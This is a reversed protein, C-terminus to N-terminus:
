HAVILSTTRFDGEAGDQQRRLTLESVMRIGVLPPITSVLL